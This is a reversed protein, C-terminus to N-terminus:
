LVADKETEKRIEEASVPTNRISGALIHQVDREVSVFAVMTEENEARQNDILRSPSDAQSFDETRQYKIDCDHGM